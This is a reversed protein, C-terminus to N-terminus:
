TAEFRMLRRRRLESSSAPSPEGGITGGASAAADSASGSSPPASTSLTPQPAPQAPRGSEELSMLIAQAMLDEEEASPAAALAAARAAVLVEAPLIPSVPADPAPAPLPAHPGEPPARTENPADLPGVLVVDDLCFFVRCTPCRAQWKRAPPEGADLRTTNKEVWWALLCNACWAPDCACGGREECTACQKTVRVNALAGCEGLCAALPPPGPQGQGPPGSAPPPPPPGAARPPAALRQAALGDRYSQTVEALARARRRGVAARQLKEFAERPVELRFADSRRPRAAASGPAAAAEAGAALAAALAALAAQRRARAAALDVEVAATRARLATRRGRVSALASAL